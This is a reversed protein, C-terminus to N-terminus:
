YTLRPRRPVIQTLDSRLGSENKRWWRFFRDRSKEEARLERHLVRQFSRRTRRDEFEDLWATLQEAFSGHDIFRGIRNQLRRVQPYVETRLRKPFAPALLELAYRLQKSVIRFDHILELPDTETPAAAFLQEALAAVRPPAFEAFELSSHPIDRILKRTQRVLEASRAEEFYALPEQALSRKEKLVTM